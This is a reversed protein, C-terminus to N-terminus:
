GEIRVWIRVSRPEVTVSELDASRVVAELGNLDIRAGSVVEQWLTSKPLVSSAQFFGASESSNVLVLIRNDIAYGLLLENDPLIWKYYEAPPEGAVRLSAGHDSARLAILGRWFTHM